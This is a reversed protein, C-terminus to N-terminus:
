FVKLFVPPHPNRAFRPTQAFVYMNSKAYVYIKCSTKHVSCTDNDYIHTALGMGNASPVLKEWPAPGTKNKAM